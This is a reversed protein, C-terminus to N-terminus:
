GGRLRPLVFFWVLVAIVVLLVTITVPGVQVLKKNLIDM